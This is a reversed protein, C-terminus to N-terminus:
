MGSKKRVASPPCGIVRIFVRSFHFQNRFGFMQSLEKVSYKPNENMFNLIHQVKFHLFARRPAMNFLETSIRHLSTRSMGTETCLEKLSPSDQLHRAFVSYLIAAGAGLPGSRSFEGCLLRQPYLTLLKRFIVAFLASHIRYESFNGAESGDATFFLRILSLFLRRDPLHVIQDCPHTGPRFVASPLVNHEAPLLHFHFAFWSCGKRLNDCHRQGPQIMLLDGPSLSLTEGDLSCSYVGKEILMIEYFVHTHLKYIGDREVNTHNCETFRIIFDENENLAPLYNGVSRISLVPGHGSRDKPITQEPM